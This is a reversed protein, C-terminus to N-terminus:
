EYKSENGLQNIIKEYFLVMEENTQFNCIFTNGDRGNVFDVVVRPPCSKSKDLPQIATICSSKIIGQPLNIYDPCVPVITHVGSNVAWFNTQAFTVFQDSRVIFLLNCFHGADMKDAITFIDQVNDFFVIINEAKSQLNGLCKMNYEANDTLKLVLAGGLELALIGVSQRLLNSLSNYEFVYYNRVSGKQLEVRRKFIDMDNKLTENANDM